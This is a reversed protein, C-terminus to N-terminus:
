PPLSSSIARFSSTISFIFCSCSVFFGSCRSPSRNNAGPPPSPISKNLGPAGAASAPVFGNPFGNPLGNGKADAISGEGLECGGGVVAGGGGEVEVVVIAFRGKVKAAARLRLWEGGFGIGM